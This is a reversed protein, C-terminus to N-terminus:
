QKIRDHKPYQSAADLLTREGNFINVLNPLNKHSPNTGKLTIKLEETIRNQSFLEHVLELLIGQPTRVNGIVEPKLM